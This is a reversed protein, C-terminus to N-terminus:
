ANRASELCSSLGDAETCGWLIVSIRPGTSSLPFKQPICHQFATNVPTTFAFVDGNRQPFGFELGTELHKFRLEREAGFSVGVTVDHAEPKRVSLAPTSEGANRLLCVSAAHMRNGDNSFKDRHYETWDQGTAYLHVISYAVRIRFIQRLVAVVYRYTPSSLLEEEVVCAPHGHGRRYPIAKWPLERKLADFLSCDKEDCLCAPWYVANGNALQAVDWSLKQTLSVCSTQGLLTSDGRNQHHLTSTRATFLEQAFQVMGIRHNAKALSRVRRVVSDSTHISSPVAIGANGVFLEVDVIHPPAAADSAPSQERKEEPVDKECTEAVAHCSGGRGWRRKQTEPVQTDESNQTAKWRRRQTSEDTQSADSTLSIPETSADAHAEVYGNHAKSPQM